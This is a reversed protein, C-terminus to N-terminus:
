AAIKLNRVMRERRDAAECLLYGVERLADTDLDADAVEKLSLFREETDAETLRLYSAGGTWIVEISKYKGAMARTKGEQEAQKRVGAILVANKDVL